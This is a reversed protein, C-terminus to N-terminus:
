LARPLLVESMTPFKVSASLKQAGDVFVALQNHGFPRRATMLSIQICHWHSDNFAPEPVTATMFEKKTSLGVVLIGDSRFFAEM